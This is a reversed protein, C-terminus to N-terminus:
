RASRAYLVGWVVLGSAVAVALSIVVNGGTNPLTLVGVTTATAVVPGAGQGYMTLREKYNDEAAPHIPAHKYLARTGRCTRLQQAINYM